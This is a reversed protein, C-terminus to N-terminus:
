KLRYVLPMITNEEKLVRVVETKSFAEGINLGYCQILLGEATELVMMKSEFGRSDKVLVFDKGTYNIDHGSRNEVRCGQIDNIYENEFVKNDFGSVDLFLDANKFNLTKKNQIYEYFYTRAKECRLRLTAGTYQKVVKDITRECPQQDHYAILNECAKTAAAASEIVNADYKWNSGLKDIRAVAPNLLAVMENLRAFEDQSCQKLTGTTPPIPPNVPPNLPPNVPPDVPISPEVPPTLTTIKSPRSEYRTLYSDTKQCKQDVRFQDYFSIISKTPEIITPPKTIRCAGASGLNQILQDCAVIAKVGDQIVHDDKKGKANDVQDNSNKILQEYIKITAVELSNCERAIEDESLEKYTEIPQTTNQGDSSNGTTAPAAKKSSSQGCSALTMVALLCIISKSLSM